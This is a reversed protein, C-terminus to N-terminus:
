ECVGPFFDERVAFMRSGNGCGRGFGSRGVQGCVSWCSQLSTGQGRGKGGARGRADGHVCMGENCVCVHACSSVHMPVGAHVHTYARAIPTFARAHPPAWTHRPHVRECTHACMRACTCVSVRTHHPSEEAGEAGLHAVQPYEPPIHPTLVTGRQQSTAAEPNIAFWARKDENRKSPFSGIPPPCCRAQPPRRSRHRPHPPSTEVAEPFLHRWPAM